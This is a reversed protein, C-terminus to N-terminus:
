RRRWRKDLGYVRRAQVKPLYDVVEVHGTHGKVSVTAGIINEKMHIASIQLWTCDVFELRGLIKQRFIIARRNTLVVADPAFNAVPRQQVAMYLPEESSTCIEQVRNLLKQIMAPNQGDAMFRSAGDREAQRHIGDTTTLNSPPLEDRVVQSQIVGTPRSPPFQIAPPAAPVPLPKQVATPPPPKHQAIQDVLTIANACGPCKAVKGVMAVSFQVAKYCKPCKMKALTVDTM